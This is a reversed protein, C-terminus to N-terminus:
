SAYARQSPAYNRMMWAALLGVLVPILVTVRAAYRGQPQSFAGTLGSNALVGALLLLAFVTLARLSADGSAPHGQRGRAWLFAIMLFALTASILTAFHAVKGFTEFSLSNLYLGTDVAIARDPDPLTEIARRQGTSYTTQDLGNEFLQTWFRGFSISLQGTWDYRLTDLLFSFQQESMARRTQTDAFLYVGLEPDGSWLFQDTETAATDLQDCYVYGVEPCNKELFARGPEDTILSAAIMPLNLPKYGYLTQVAQTFCMGAIFTVGLACGCWLAPKLVAERRFCAALLVGVPLLAVAVIFHTSHSITSILLLGAWAWKAARSLRDYFAFFVAVSLISLPALVDPLLLAVFVGVCSFCAAVVMWAGPMLLHRNFVSRLLAVGTATLLLAACLAPAISGGLESLAVLIVAYYVSRAQSIQYDAKATKPTNPDKVAIQPELLAEEKPTDEQLLRTVDVSPAKQIASYRTELGIVSEIATTGGHLYALTDFWYIPGRNILLPMLLIIFGVLALAPAVIRTMPKDM